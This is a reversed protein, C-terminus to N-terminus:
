NSRGRWATPSSVPLSEERVPGRYEGHGLGYTMTFGPYTQEAVVLDWKRNDWALIL